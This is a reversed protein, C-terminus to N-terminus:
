VGFTSFVVDVTQLKAGAQKKREKLPATYSFFSVSYFKRASFEWDLINQKSAIILIAGSKYLSNGDSHPM